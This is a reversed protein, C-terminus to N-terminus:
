KLKLGCCKKEDSLEKAVVAESAAIIECNLRWIGFANPTLAPSDGLRVGFPFLASIPYFAIACQLLLGYLRHCSKQEVVDHQFQFSFSRVIRRYQSVLLVPCNSGHIGSLATEDEGRHYAKDNQDTQGDLEHDVRVRHRRPDQTRKGSYM